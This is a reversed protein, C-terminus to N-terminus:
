AAGRLQLAAQAEVRDDFPHRVGAIEQYTEHGKGALVVVDGVKAAKIAFRIASKRDADFQCAVPNRIGARIDAIIQQADESRPNDSTVVVRDAFNEAIEGMRPRKSRDRDGGCGFVCWLQGACHRRAAKLVTQLADPTHAYDVLVTPGAASAVLQMRGAVPELAPTHACVTAFDFGLACLVGIAGLVNGVNFDGLLPAEIRAGGWSSKIDAVFGQASYSVQTVCLESREQKAPDMSYRVLKVGPEARKLMAGAFPDDANVVAAKLGPVAFLRAKALGYRQMDGHYDLHDHTLSTFLAAAFRVDAVRHQDLAHSSVEMAVHSVQGDRMLALTRQVAVADPTTYGSELYDGAIRAGLTGVLAANVSMARLLQWMYHTCSTKGNTGTVGIVSLAMSPAAYFRAAIASVEAALNDVPLLKVNETNIGTPVFQDKAEYAIAAAGSAIANTIFARGDSRAGPFALFLDGFKVSRSDSSVGSVMADGCAAALQPLLQALAISYTASTTM